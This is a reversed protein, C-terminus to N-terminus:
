FEESMNDLEELGLINNYLVSKPDDSPEKKYYLIGINKTIMKRLRMQLLEGDAPEGFNVPNMRASSVVAFRDDERYSFGFRWNMGRLYMDGDTIGILIANRDEGQKPYGRKIMAILEEAVLQRRTPDYASVDFGLLPLTEVNLKFRTRYFAAMEDVPVSVQIGIPVFYITRAQKCSATLLATALLSM